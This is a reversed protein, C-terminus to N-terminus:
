EKTYGQVLYFHGRPDDEIVSHLIISKSGYIIKYDENFTITEGGYKTQKRMLVDYPYGNVEQGFILARDGRSPNLGVKIDALESWSPDGGGQSDSAETNKYLKVWIHLKSISM